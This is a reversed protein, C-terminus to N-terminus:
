QILEGRRKWFEIQCADCVGYFFGCVSTDLSMKEQVAFLLEALRMVYKIKTVLQDDQMTSNCVVPNEM